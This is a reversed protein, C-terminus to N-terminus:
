ATAQARIPGDRLSAAGLWAWSLGFAVLMVQSLPGPAYTQLSLFTAVGLALASAAVALAAARSLVRARYTAIAFIASGILTALVGVITVDWASWPGVLPNDEPGAAIAAMGAISLLMGIAPIAFASWAMVPHERAQFGSLGILAVLLGLSGVALLVFTTVDGENRVNIAGLAWGAGGILAGLGGIRLLMHHGGGTGVAGPLGFRTLRADIAGLVIDAVDFPGLPCSELLAQFEEGYRRRWPAPYLALLFRIV